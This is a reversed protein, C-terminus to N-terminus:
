EGFGTTSNAGGTSHQPASVVARLDCRTMRVSRFLCVFGTVDSRCHSNLILCLNLHTLPLSLALIVMIDEKTKTTILLLVINILHAQRPNKRNRVLHFQAIEFLLRFLASLFNFRCVCCFYDQTKCALHYRRFRSTLSVHNPASVSSCCLTQRAYYQAAPQLLPPPRSPVCPLDINQGKPQWSPRLEYLLCSTCCPVLRSDVDFAQFMRRIKSAEPPLPASSRSGFRQKGMSASVDEVAAQSRASPNVPQFMEPTYM